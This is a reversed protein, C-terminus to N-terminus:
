IQSAKDKSFGLGDGLIGEPTGSTTSQRRASRDDQREEGFHIDTLDREIGVLLTEIRDITDESWPGPFSAKAHVAGDEDQLIYDAEMTVGGPGGFKIDLGLLTFGVIKCPKDVRKM